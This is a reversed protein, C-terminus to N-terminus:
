SRKRAVPKGRSTCASEAPQWKTGRAVLRAVVCLSGPKRGSVVHNQM